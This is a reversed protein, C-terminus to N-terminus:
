KKFDVTDCNQAPKAGPQVLYVVQHPVTATTFPSSCHPSCVARPFAPASQGLAPHSKEWEADQKPELLGPTITNFLIQAYTGPSHCIRVDVCCGGVRKCFSGKM